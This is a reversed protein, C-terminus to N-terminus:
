KDSVSVTVTNSEVGNVTVKVTNEGANNRNFNITPNNGSFTKSNSGYEITASSLDASSDVAFTVVVDYRSATNAYTGFSAYDDECAIYINDSSSYVSVIKLNVYDNEDKVIVKVKESESTKYNSTGSYVAYINYSKKTSYSYTFTSTTALNIPTGIQGNEDYFTVTGENVNNTTGYEYVTPAITFSEGPAVTTPNISISTETKAPGGAEEFVYTITNSYDTGFNNHVEIYIGYTGPASPTFSIGSQAQACTFEAYDYDDGTEPHVCLMTKDTSSGYWPLSSTLKITITGPYQVEITTDSSSSDAITYYDGAAKLIENEDSTGVSSEGRSTDDASEIEDIVINENQSNDNVTELTSNTIDELEAASVSGLCLTIIAIALIM